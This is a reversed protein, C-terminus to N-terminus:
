DLDVKLMKQKLLEIRQQEKEIVKKETESVVNQPMTDAVQNNSVDVNDKEKTIVENSAKKSHTKKKNKLKDALYQKYIEAPNNWDMQVKLGTKNYRYLEQRLRFNHEFAGWKGHAILTDIFVGGEKEYAKIKTGDNPDIEIFIKEGILDYRNCLIDSTYIVYKYNIHPRRGKEKNGVVRVIDTENILKIDDRYPENLIRVMQGSDYRHKLSQLPSRGYLGKQPTNNYRAVEVEIMERLETLNMEYKIANETPHDRRSDNPNSGTTNPLNHFVQEEFIDFFKEIHPRRTPTGVPGYNIGVNLQNLLLKQLKKGQHQKANDCKLEGFVAWQLEPIATSVFGGNAPYVFGPVTLKMLEHPVIANKICKIVDDQSYEIGEAIQYGLIAKTQIEIIAIMWLRHLVEIVVDGEPTCLTKTFIGDIKHGDMEVINYLSPPLPNIQTATGTTTALTFADNSGNAKLYCMYNEDCLEDIYRYLSRLGVPNKKNEESMLLNLPYEEYLKQQKCMKIMQEYIDVVKYNKVNVTDSSNKFVAKRIMDEIDPHKNLFLSFVGTLGHHNYDFSMETTRENKKVHTNKVLANFGWLSGDEKQILCRKVLRHIESASIGTHITIDKILENSFYEKVAQIRKYLKEKESDSKELMTPEEWKSIDIQYENQLSGSLRKRSM